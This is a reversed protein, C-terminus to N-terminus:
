PEIQWFVRSGPGFGVRETVIRPAKCRRRADKIQQDTHGEKRGLAMVTTAADSGGPTSGLHSLLWEQVENRAAREDTTEPRRSLADTLTLESDGIFEFVGVNAQEDDDTCDVLTSVLRYAMTPYNCPGYSNKVQELIPSDDVVAAGFIVRPVNKFAGSGTILSSPDTGASKNFHCVCVIVCGTREAIRALPDLVRRVDRERHTDIGGGIVSMLPDIILLRISNTSIYTELAPLDAPLDLTTEAAGVHTSLRRVRALDAGAGRLKSGISFQWSNETDLVAVNQPRGLFTGPLTGRSLHTALWYTFSSKGTGERGAVTVLVGVPIRDHGNESWFWRPARTSIASLPTDTVTVPSM